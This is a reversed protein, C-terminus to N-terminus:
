TDVYFDKDRTRKCENLSRNELFQFYLIYNEEIRKKLKFFKLNLIKFNEVDM